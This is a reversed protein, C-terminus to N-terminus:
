NIIELKLGVEEGRAKVAYWGTLLGALRLIEEETKIGDLKLDNIDLENPIELKLISFQKFISFQFNFIRAVAIPGMVEELRIVVDGKKVLKELNNNDEESRGIVILTEGAWFIRGYKLLEMDEPACEPWIKLMEKARKSFTPDTLLCGGAPSPYTLNYKKALEFQRERSRGSINLLKKRDVLGEKEVKTEEMLLASLPRLVEVGAIKEVRKLANKNQSMPRQGLVEGTAIFDFGEKKAIEGAWKIMLAHCDICPNLLKGYGSAPNKVMELHEKKFDIKKLEIGLQSAAIEAKGAGFFCSIFSVGAVEIGQEMLTKASLM